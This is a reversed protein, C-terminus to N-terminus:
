EKLNRTAIYQRWFSSLDDFLKKDRDSLGANSVHASVFQGVGYGNKSLYAAYGSRPPKELIFSRVIDLLALKEELAQPNSAYMHPRDLANLTFKDIYDLAEQASKM